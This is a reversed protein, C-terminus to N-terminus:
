DGRADGPQANLLLIVGALARRLGEPDRDVRWGELARDLDRAVRDGRIEETVVNSCPGTVDRNPAVSPTDREGPNEGWVDSDSM